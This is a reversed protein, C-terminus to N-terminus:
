VAKQRQAQAAQDERDTPTLARLELVALSGDPAQLWSSHARKIQQWLRFSRLATLHACDRIGVTGAEDVLTVGCSDRPTPATQRGVQRGTGKEFIRM